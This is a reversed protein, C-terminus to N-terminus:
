AENNPAALPDLPREVGGGRSPNEGRAKRGELEIQMEGSAMLEQYRRVGNLVSTHDRGGLKRGIMPLSLWDCEMRLRYYAEFRAWAVRRTRRKGVIEKLSVGWKRAVEAIINDSVGPQRRVITASATMVPPRTPYTWRAAVQWDTM